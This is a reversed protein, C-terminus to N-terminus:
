IHIFIFPFSFISAWLFLTRQKPIARYINHNRIMVVYYFKSLLYQVLYNFIFLFPKSSSFVFRIRNPLICLLFQSCLSFSFVRSLNDVLYIPKHIKSAKWFSHHSMSVCKLLPFWRRPCSIRANIKNPIIKISLCWQIIIM